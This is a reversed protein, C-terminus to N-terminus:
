ATARCGGEWRLEAFCASNHFLNQYERWASTTVGRAIEEDSVARERAVETLVHFYNDMIARTVIRVGSFEAVQWILKRLDGDGAIRM